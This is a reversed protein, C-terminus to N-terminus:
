VHRAELNAIAQRVKSEALGPFTDEPFQRFLDALPGAPTQVGNDFVLVQEKYNVVFPAGFLPVAMVAIAGFRHALYMATEFTAFYYPNLNCVIDGGPGPEIIKVDQVFEPKFPQNLPPTPPPAAAPAGPWPDRPAFPFNASTPLSSM